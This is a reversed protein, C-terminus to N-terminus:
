EPIGCMGGPCCAGSACAPQSESRSSSGIIAAGSILRKVPADAATDGVPRGTRACLEGWSSINESMKHSVEIKQGNSECLYDYTPM